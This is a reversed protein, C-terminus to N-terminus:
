KTSKANKGKLSYGIFLGALTAALALWQVAYATHQEPQMEKTFQWDRLYGNPEDANLEIQFSAIPRGLKESVAKEDVIQILSPWGATPIEVGKLKIGVSPFKNIRGRITTKQATVALNPLRYRSGNLPIWGRNVLVTNDSGEVRFPTLVAFGAKGSRIQNDLLFQRTSDYYGQLQIQKYHWTQGNKEPLTPLETIQEQANKKALELVMAKEGARGFQWKALMLFILIFGIFATIKLVKFGLKHNAM